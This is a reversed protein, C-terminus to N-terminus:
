WRHIVLKLMPQSCPFSLLSNGVETLTVKGDLLIKEPSRVFDQVRYLVSEM